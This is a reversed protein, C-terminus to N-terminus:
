SQVEVLPGEEGALYRALLNAQAEWAAVEAADWAAVEAADRSAASAADRAADRAAVWAAERAASWEDGFEAYAVCIDLCANTLEPDGTLHAVRRACDVSFLRATRESWTEVKRLLRISEHTQKDDGKVCEGRTEAEYVSEGLHHVLQEVGACTHYGSSCIEPKVPPLWDGPTYAGDESKTPLYDAYDGHGYAGSTGTLTKYITM